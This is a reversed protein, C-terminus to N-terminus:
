SSVKFVLFRTKGLIWGEARIRGAAQRPLYARFSYFKPLRTVSEFKGEERLFGSRVEHARAGGGVEPAM